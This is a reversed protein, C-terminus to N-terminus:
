IDSLDISKVGTGISAYEGKRGDAMKVSEGSFACSDTADPMNSRIKAAEAPTLPQLSVGNKKLHEARDRRQRQQKDRQYEKFDEGRGEVTRREEIYANRDDCMKRWVPDDTAMIQANNGKLWADREQKNKPRFGMSVSHDQQDVTDVHFHPVSYFVQPADCDHEECRVTAVHKSMTSVREIIHREQECMYEYTPM